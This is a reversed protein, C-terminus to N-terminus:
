SYSSCYLFWRTFYFNFFFSELSMDFLRECVAISSPPPPLLTHLTDDGDDHTCYCNRLPLPARECGFGCLVAAPCLLRQLYLVNNNYEGSSPLLLIITRYCRNKKEREVDYFSSLLAIIYLTTAFLFQSRNPVSWLFFFPLFYAFIFQMLKQRLCCYARTWRNCTAATTYSSRAWLQRACM